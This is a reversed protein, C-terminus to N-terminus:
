EDAMKAKRAEMVIYGLKAYIVGEESMAQPDLRVYEDIWERYFDPAELEPVVSPYTGACWNIMETKDVFPDMTQITEVKIPLLDALKLLETYQEATLFKRPTFGRWYESWKPSSVVYARAQNWASNNRTPVLILLKGEPKLLRALNQLAAQQDSCHQLACFSVILDFSGEVRPDLFSGEQFSLNPYEALHYQKRAWAIMPKALDIGTVSGNPVFKAIDATIKGDGCGVDLIQENGNLGKLHSAMFSWAWRRQLDSHHVYARILKTDWYSVDAHLLTEVSLFLIFLYLRFM